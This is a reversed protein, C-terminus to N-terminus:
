GQTGEEKFAMVLAEMVDYYCMGTIQQLEQLTGRVEEENDGLQLVVNFVIERLPMSDYGHISQIVSALAAKMNKLNDNEAIERQRMDKIPKQYRALSRVFESLVAYGAREAKEKLLAVEKASIRINLHQDKKLKKYPGPM